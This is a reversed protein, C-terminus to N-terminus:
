QEGSVPTLDFYYSEGQDNEQIVLQDKSSVGNKRNLENMYVIDGGVVTDFDMEYISFVEEGHIEGGSYNKLWWKYSEPFKVGLRVEAKEIWDESVGEGFEAFDVIDSNEEILKKIRDYDM